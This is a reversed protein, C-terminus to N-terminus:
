RIVHAYFTMEIGRLEDDVQPGLEFIYIVYPTDSAVWVIRNEANADFTHRMTIKHTLDGRMGQAVVLERGRLPEIAAWEDVQRYTAAQVEALPDFPTPVDEFTRIRDGKVTMRDTLALIYIGHRLKGAKM